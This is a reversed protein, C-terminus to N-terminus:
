NKNFKIRDVDAILQEDQSPHIELEVEEIEIPEPTQSNVPGPQPSSLLDAEDESMSGFLSGLHLDDEVNPNRLAIPTRPASSTRV